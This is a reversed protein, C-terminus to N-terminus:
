KEKAILRGGATDSHTEPGNVIFKNDTPAAKDPELAANLVESIWAAPV